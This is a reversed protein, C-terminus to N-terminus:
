GSQDRLYQKRRMREDAGPLQGPLVIMEPGKIVKMGFPQNTDKIEPILGPIPIRELNAISPVNPNRERMRNSDETNLAEKRAKM